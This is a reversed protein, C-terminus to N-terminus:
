KELRAKAAQLLARSYLAHFGSLANFVFGMKSKGNNSAQKVVASGFFLRTGEATNETMFWSRTRHHLDCMLLQNESRAEVDWAAFQQRTSAAVDKVQQDDSPRKIAWSLIWREVKFLWSCYFASLYDEFTVQSKIDVSYCDTFDGSHRYKQLLSHRPLQSHKQVAM